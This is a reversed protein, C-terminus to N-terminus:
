PGLSHLKKRIWNHINRKFLTLDPSIRFHYTCVKWFAHLSVVGPDINVSKFKRKFKKDNLPVPVMKIHESSVCLCLFHLKEYDLIKEARKVACLNLRILHQIKPRITFYATNRLRFQKMRNWQPVEKKKFNGTGVFNKKYSAFLM